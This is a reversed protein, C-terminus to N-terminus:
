IQQLAQAQQPRHHLTLLWMTLQLQMKSTKGATAMSRWSIVDVFHIVNKM